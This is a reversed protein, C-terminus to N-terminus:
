RVVENGAPSLVYWLAGFANLGQGTVDGPKKDVVYYYLPHGNYTVESSGDSRKTTGLKGAMVGQGAKPEGTTTVPPWFDACSGNCTSTTGTDKEFLYLTMGRGDVLIRGLSTSKVAITADGSTSQTTTTASAAGYGASNGSATTGSGGKASYGGCGAAVLTALLATAIVLRKM